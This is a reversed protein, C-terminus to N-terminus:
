EGWITNDEDKEPLNGDSFDTGRYITTPEKTPSATALITESAFAIVEISPKEYTKKKM